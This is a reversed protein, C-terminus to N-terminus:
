IIEKIRTVVEEWKKNIDREPLRLVRIGNKAYFEDRRKDKELAGPRSHWYTGDCEIVTNTKPIYFDAWGRLGVLHKEQEFEVGNASLFEAVKREIATTRGWRCRNPHSAVAERYQPDDWKKSVGDSIAARRAPDSMLAVAIKRSKEKNEPTNKAKRNAILWHERAGPARQGRKVDSLFKQIAEPTWVRGRAIASIKNKFEDSQHIADMKERYEADQWAKKHADTQAQRYEPNSWLALSRKSCEDADPGKHGKNAASIKAKTEDSMKQGKHM